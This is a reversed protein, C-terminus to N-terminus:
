QNAIEEAPASSIFTGDIKASIDAQLKSFSDGIPIFVWAHYPSQPYMGPYYLYDSGIVFSEIKYKDRDQYFDWLYYVDDLTLSSKGMHVTVMEFFKPLDMPQFLSEPQSIAKTM